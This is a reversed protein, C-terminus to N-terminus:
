FQVIITLIHKLVANNSSNLLLFGAVNRIFTIPCEKLWM